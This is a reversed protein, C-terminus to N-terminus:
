SLLHGSYSSFPVHDLHKLFDARTPGQCRHWAKNVENSGPAIDADSYVSIKRSDSDLGCFSSTKQM